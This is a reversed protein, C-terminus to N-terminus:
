LTQKKRYLQIQIEQRSEPSNYIPEWFLKQTESGDEETFTSWTPIGQRIMVQPLQGTVLLSVQRVLTTILKNTEDPLTKTIPGVFVATELDSAPLVSMPNKTPRTKTRTKTSHLVWLM